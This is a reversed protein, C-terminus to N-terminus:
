RFTAWIGHTRFSGQDWPGKGPFPDIYFTYDRTQKFAANFLDKHRYRTRTGSADKGKVSIWDLDNALSVNNGLEANVGLAWHGAPHVNFGMGWETNLVNDLAWQCLRASTARTDPTPLSTAPGTPAFTYTSRYFETGYAVGALFGSGAVTDDQEYLISLTSLELAYLEGIIAGRVPTESGNGVPGASAVTATSGNDFLVSGGIGGLTVGDPGPSYGAVTPFKGTLLGRLTARFKETTALAADNANLVVDMKMNEVLDLFHPPVEGSDALYHGAPYFCEVEATILTDEVIFNPDTKAHEVDPLSYAADFFFRGGGSTPADPFYATRLLTFSVDFDMDNPGTVTIAIGFEVLGPTDEHAPVLANQLAVTPAVDPLITAFFQLGALTKFFGNSFDSHYPVSVCKTADKNFRWLWDNVQWRYDTPDPVTVWGPYPPTFQKYAGIPVNAAVTGGHTYDKVPYVQFRGYSDTSIFFKRSGVSQVAAHRWYVWEQDLVPAGSLLGGSTYLTPLVDPGFDSVKSGASALRAFNYPSMWNCQGALGPAQAQTSTVLSMGDNHPHWAHEFFKQNQWSRRTYVNLDKTNIDDAARFRWTDGSAPTFATSSRPSSKAGSKPFTTRVLSGAVFVGTPPGEFGPSGFTNDNVHESTFFEYALGGIFEITLYHFPPKQQVHIQFGDVLFWQSFYGDPNLAELRRLKSLAFPLYLGAGDGLLIKRALIM